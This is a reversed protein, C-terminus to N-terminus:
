QWGQEMVTDLHKTIDLYSPCPFVKYHYAPEVEHLIETCGKCIEIRTIRNVQSEVPANASAEYKLTAETASELTEHELTNWQDYPCLYYVKPEHRVLGDHIALWASLTRKHRKTAVDIRVFPTIEELDSISQRTEAIQEGVFALYEATPRTM